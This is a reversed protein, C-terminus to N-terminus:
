IQDRKEIRRKHHNATHAYIKAREEKGVDAIFYLIAAKFLEHGIGPDLIRCQPQIGLKAASCSIINIM